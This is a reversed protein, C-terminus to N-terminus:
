YESTPCRLVKFGNKEFRAKKFRCAAYNWCNENWESWIKVMDEFYFELFFYTHSEQYTSKLM